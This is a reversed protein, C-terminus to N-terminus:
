ESDAIDREVLLCSLRIRALEDIDLKPQHEAMVALDSVLGTLRTLVLARSELDSLNSYPRHFVKGDLFAEARLELLRVVASPPLFTVFDGSEISSEWGGNGGEVVFRQQARVKESEQLMDWYSTPAGGKIERQMADKVRDLLRSARATLAQATVKQDTARSKLDALVTSLTKSEAARAVRIWEALEVMAMDRFDVGYETFLSHTIDVFVEVHPAKRLHAFAPVPTEKQDALAVGKVAWITLSVSGHGKVEYEGSMDVVQEGAARYSELREDLTQSRNDDTTPAPNPSTSAPTTAAPDHSLGMTEFPDAGAAPPDVTVPHDHRYASDYWTDDTQYDPDGKRFRDAWEIAKDFLAKGDAGPVLYNLGPDDRRFGTYLRGLYSNNTRNYLQMAKREKLPVTGRVVRVLKIWEPSEEIFRTKTYYVPVHDCHIEGVIRGKSGRISDIPYELDPGEIGDPDEWFFLKKDRTLIKRGNRLFDLGYDNAHHYRQIGIWGWIRRQREQIKTSECDDCKDVGRPSWWGCNFCAMAPLLHEDIPIVAPITVGRRTVERNSGWVCPLRPQTKRGNVTILFGRERLLYSYVDGLQERLKDARRVLDQWQDTKLNKIIIQTGHEDPSAKPEQRTPVDYSGGRVLADLDLDLVTWSPDGARTTRITTLRGLRATAINFGMGYLGLAGYRANGSWGARVANTLTSLDMGRGNDTVWVEATRHNGDKGPLNINVTPRENDEPPNSLFDDFANDVLESLCQLPSFEIDGLVTLIRPHPEINVFQETM